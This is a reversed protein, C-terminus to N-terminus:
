LINRTQLTFSPVFIYRLKFWQDSSLQNFILNRLDKICNDNKFSVPFLLFIPIHVSMTKGNELIHKCTMCAIQSIYQKYIKHIINYSNNKFHRM